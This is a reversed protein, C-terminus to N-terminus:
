KGRRGETVRGWGTSPKPKATQNMPATQPRPPTKFLAGLNAKFQADNAELNAKLQAVAKSDTGPIVFAAM